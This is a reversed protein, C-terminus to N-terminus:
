IFRIRRYKIDLWKKNKEKESPALENLTMQAMRQAISSISHWTYILPWVVQM